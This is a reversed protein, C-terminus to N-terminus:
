LDRGIVKGAIKLLILTSVAGVILVFIASPIMLYKNADNLINVPMQLTNFLVKLFAIAGRVVSIPLTLLNSEQFNEFASKLKASSEAVEQSKSLYSTDNYPTNWQPESSTFLDHQLQSFGIVVISFAFVSMLYFRLSATRVV